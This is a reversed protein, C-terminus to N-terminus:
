ELPASTSNTARSAPPGAPSSAPRYFLGLQLSEAIRTAREMFQASVEPEFLTGATEGFLSLWRQFLGPELGPLRMHTQMPSGHYTGSKLMVSSWFRYMTRLHTDWHDGIAAQFVPGLVDDERIRDYFRDVLTVIREDTVSDFKM